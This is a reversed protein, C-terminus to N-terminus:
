KNFHACICSFNLSLSLHMHFLVMGRLVIIILYHSLLVVTDCILACLLITDSAHHHHPLCFVDLGTSADLVIDNKKDREWEWETSWWNKTTTPQMWHMIREIQINVDITRAMSEFDRRLSLVKSKRITILLLFLFDFIKKSLFKVDFRNNNKEVTSENEAASFFLCFSNDVNEAHCGYYKQVSCCVANTASWLLPPDSWSINTKCAFTSPWKDSISM